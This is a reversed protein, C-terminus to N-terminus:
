DGKQTVLNDMHELIMMPSDYMSMEMSSVEGDSNTQINLLVTPLKMIQMKLHMADKTLVVGYVLPGCYSDTKFIDDEGNTSVRDVTQELQGIDFPHYDLYLSTLM